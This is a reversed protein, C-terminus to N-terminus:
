HVRWGDDGSDGGGGLGLGMSVLCCLCIFGCISQQSRSKIQVQKSIKSYCGLTGGM